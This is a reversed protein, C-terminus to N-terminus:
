LVDDDDVTQRARPQRTSAASSRSESDRDEGMAFRDLLAFLPEHVRLPTPPKSLTATPKHTYGYSSVFFYSADAFLGVADDFAQPDDLKKRLWNAASDSAEHRGSWYGSQLHAGNQSPVWFAHKRHLMLDAKTVAVALYKQEPLLPLEVQDRKRPASNLVQRYNDLIEFCTPERHHWARQRGKATPEFALPDALLVVGAAYRLFDTGALRAKDSMAEGAHDEFRLLVRRGDHQHTLIVRFGAPSGIPTAPLERQDRFFPRLFRREVMERADDRMSVNWVDGGVNGRLLQHMLAALFHSKGAQRAGLIAVMRDEVHGIEPDLREWCSPCAPELTGEEDCYPCARDLALRRGKKDWLKEYDPKLRRPARRGGVQLVQGCSASTCRLGIRVFPFLRFCQDCLVNFSNSGM